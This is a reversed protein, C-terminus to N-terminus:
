RRIEVREEPLPGRTLYAGHATPPQPRLRITISNARKEGKGRSAKQGKAARAEAVPTTTYSAVQIVAGAKCHPSPGKYHAYYFNNNYYHCGLLPAVIISLADKCSPLSHLFNPGLSM